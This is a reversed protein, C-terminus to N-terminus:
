RTAELIDSMKVKRPVECTGDVAYEYQARYEGKHHRKVFGRGAMAHTLSCVRDIKGGFAEAIERTSWRGGEKLLFLWIASVGLHEEQEIVATSHM